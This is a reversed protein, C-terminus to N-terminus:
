CLLTRNRFLYDEITYNFLNLDFRYFKKLFCILNGNLNVFMQRYFEKSKGNHFFNTQISNIKLSTKLRNLDNEITEFKGIFNYDFLCTFCLSSYPKWHVDNRNESTILYEVFHEFKPVIRECTASSNGLYFRSFKRCVDQRIQDYLSSPQKNTLSTIKDIYASALREFPHRVFIIRLYNSSFIEDTNVM